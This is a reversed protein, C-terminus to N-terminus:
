VLKSVVDGLKSSKLFRILKINLDKRKLLIWTVHWGLGRSRMIWEVTNKDWLFDKNKFFKSSSMAHSKRKQREGYDFIRAVGEYRTLTKEVKMMNSQFVIKWLRTQSASASLFALISATCADVCGNLFLQPELAIALSITAGCAHPALAWKQHTGYSLLCLIVYLQSIIACCVNYLM